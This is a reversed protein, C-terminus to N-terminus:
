FMKIESNSIKQFFLIKTSAVSIKDVTKSREGSFFLVYTIKYQLFKRCSALM